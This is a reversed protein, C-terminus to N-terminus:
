ATWVNEGGQGGSMMGGYRGTSRQGEQKCTRVSGAAGLSTPISFCMARWAAQGATNRSGEPMRETSRCYPWRTGRWDEGDRNTTALSHLAHSRSRLSMGKDATSHANPLIRGVLNMTRQVIAARTSTGGVADVAPLARSHVQWRALAESAKGADADVGVDSPHLNASCTHMGLGPLHRKVCAPQRGCCALLAPWRLQAAM